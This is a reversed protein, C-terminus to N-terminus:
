RCQSFTSLPIATNFLYNSFIIKTLDGESEQIVVEKPHYTDQDYTIAITAQWQGEMTNSPSILLTSEESKKITHDKALKTFDNNLWSWIQQAVLRMIPDNDISFHIPEGTDDCRVGKDGNFILTSPVPSIFSWRLKDPRILKLNGHFLVPKPFLSLYKEQSFDCSFSHVKTARIRIKELFSHLDGDVESSAYSSSFLFFFGNLSFLIFFLSRKM